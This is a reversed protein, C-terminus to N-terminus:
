VDLPVVLVKGIHQRAEVAEHALAIDDLTYRYTSPHHLVGESLWHTLAGIARQKMDAPMTYVLIFSIQLNRRMLERVPISPHLETDSAYSVVHAGNAAMAVNTAVNGAFDLDVIADFGDRGHSQLWSAASSTLDQGRRVTQIGASHAVSAQADNTVSALVHAGVLGAMQAAYFGVAGVAGHVFVCHGPQLQLREICYWATLAPIGLSAGVDFSVSDPLPVALHDPVTVFEAATGFPRNLQCEYLWVREGLRGADVGSGVKDIVGSGDQHPITQRWPNPRAGVGRRTKVDSPNVGSAAVRVRVMGAGPNEAPIDAIRLVDRAAGRSEYYAARM